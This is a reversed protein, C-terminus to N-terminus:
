NPKKKKKFYVGSQSCVGIKFNLIILPLQPYTGQFLPMYSASNAKMCIPVQFPTKILPSLGKPNSITLLLNKVSEELDYIVEVSSTCHQNVSNCWNAKKKKNMYPLKKWLEHAQLKPSLLDGLKQICSHPDISSGRKWIEKFQTCWMWSLLQVFMVLLFNRWELEVWKNFSDM